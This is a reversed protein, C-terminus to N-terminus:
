PVQALRVLAPMNGAEVHVKACLNHVRSTLQLCLSTCRLYQGVGACEWFAKVRALRKRNQERPNAQHEGAEVRVYLHWLWSVWHCLGGGLIVLM